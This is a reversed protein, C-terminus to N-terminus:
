VMDGRVLVVLGGESIEASAAKSLDLKRIQRAGDLSPSLCLLNLAQDTSNSAPRATKSQTIMLDMIKGVPMDDPVWVREVKGGGIKGSKMWADVKARGSGGGNKGLGSAPSLDVTWEFFRRSQSDSDSLSSRSAKLLPEASSRIKRLHIDWLKDAKTKTKTSLQLQPPPDSIPTPTAATAATFSSAAVDDGSAPKVRVVDRQPPPKAIVRGAHDPFRQAIVERAKERRQLFADHRENYDLPASCKHSTQSRHIVCYAGGCGACRVERAISETRGNDIDAAMGLGAISEISERECGDVECGKKGRDLKGPLALAAAPSSRSPGAPLDAPCRHTGIHTSCYPLTCYQCTLPLFDVLPCVSCRAGPSLISM